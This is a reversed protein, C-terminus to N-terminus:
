NGDSYFKTYRGDVRGIIKVEEPTFNEKPIISSDAKLTITGNEEPHYYRVLSRTDYFALAVDGPKLDASMNVLLTDTPKIGSEALSDDPCDIMLYNGNESIMFPSVPHYKEINYINLLDDVNRKSIKKIEPIYVANAYLQNDESVLQISRAAGLQRKIVGKQELRNLIGQVAGPTKEGVMEGIERVTPPIGKLKIYTEIVSYVKKQKATLSSFNVSM